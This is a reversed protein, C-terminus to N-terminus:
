SIFLLYRSALYRLRANREDEVKDNAEGTQELPLMAYRDCHSWTNCLVTFGRPGGSTRRPPMPATSEKTSTADPAAARLSASAFVSADVAIPGSILAKAPLLASVARASSTWRERM